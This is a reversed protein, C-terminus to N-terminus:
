PHFGQKGCQCTSEKGSFWWCLGKHFEYILRDKYLDCCLHTFISSCAAQRFINPFCVDSLCTLLAFLFNVSPSTPLKKESPTLALFRPQKPGLVKNPPSLCEQRSPRAQSKHGRPSYGALTRQEQFKRPLFAPLPNGHGGGPSRGSGPVSGM